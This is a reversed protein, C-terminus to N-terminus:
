ILRLVAPVFLFIALNLGVAALILVKMLSGPRGERCALALLVILVPLFDLTFRQTNVQVFGNNCYFLMHLLALAITIWAGTILLRNGSARFALFVFPSAFTLSTGYYDMAKPTLGDFEVHPGQLFMYIFNFVFYKYHFLGYRMEGLLGLPDAAIYFYGTDFPDGFRIYNLYLYSIVFLSFVAGFIFVRRLAQRWDGGADAILVAMLFVSSYVALQRTLFACGLFVAMLWARKRGFGERLALFIMLVAVVHSFNWVGSSFKTVFWIGTGFLFAIMLWWANEEPVQLRKLLSRIVMFIGAVLILAVLTTNVSDFVAVLPTLILAPFPPFTVYYKGEYLAADNVPNDIDLKGQIFSQAQLVHLNREGTDNVLNFGVSITFAVCLAFFLIKINRLQTNDQIM